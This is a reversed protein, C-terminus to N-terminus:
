FTTNIVLDEFSLISGSKWLSLLGEGCGAPSGHDGSALTAERFTNGAYLEILPLYCYGPQQFQVHM